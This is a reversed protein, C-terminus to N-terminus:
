THWTHQGAAGKEVGRASEVCLYMLFVDHLYVKDTARCFTAVVVSCLFLVVVICKM